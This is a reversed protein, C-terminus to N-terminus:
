RAVSRAAPLQLMCLGSLVGLTDILVDHWEFHNHYVLVESVEVAIGFLVVLSGIWVQNIRLRTKCAAVLTTIFFVLYHGWSHWYGTTGLLLKFKLPMLSLVIVAAIWLSLVQRM